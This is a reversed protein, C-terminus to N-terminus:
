RLAGLGTIVDAFRNGLAIQGATTFHLADPGLELDDCDFWAYGPLSVAQQGARVAAAYPFGQDAPPNVRGVAFRITQDGLDRRMSQVFATLNAGYNGAMAADQADSEGQMWLVGVVKVPRTTKATQVADLTKFYLSGAVQPSWDNALSTAPVTVKIIGVKGSAGARAGFSLEPGFLMPHLVGPELLPWQNGQFVQTNPQPSWWNAPLERIVGNGFANSQGLVLFVPLAATQSTQAPQAAPSSEPGGGGGCGALLAASLAGM